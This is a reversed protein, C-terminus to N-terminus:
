EHRTLDKIWKMSRIRLIGVIAELAIITKLIAVVVVPPASWVFAALAALPICIMWMIVIDSYFGTQGDGGARLIGVMGVMELLSFPWICAIVGMFQRAYAVADPELNYLSLFPGRALLTVGGMCLGIGLGTTLMTKAQRKVEDMRGMGITKSIVVSCANLFGTGVSACLNYLVMSVNYGAVVSTGLQGTIMSGTSTGLSWVIEHAVIPASVKMLDRGLERDRRKLFSLRFGIRKELKLLYTGCIALELLRAIVTGVAIGTIGLHPFGFRGFLLCYDLAINVSYSILNTIFLIRVKEVGRCGGFIMVSLACPLYMVAVKRLYAASLALVEPDKLYIRMVTEPAAMVVLTFCLGFLAVARLGTALVTRIAEMNRQGWYQAVLVCCGIAFGNCITYYIFFVQDAQSVATMQLQDISGLMVSNVTDVSLRLLQQLVIPFALSLINGYFQRDRILLASKM